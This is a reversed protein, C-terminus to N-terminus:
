LLPNISMGPFSMRPFRPEARAIKALENAVTNYRREIHNLELGFFDELCRVEECYVEMRADHCSSNKMVQNIIFQSDGQVDLCRIGLKIAIRLGNVLAKYEAVNNSAAFHLHIIYHLHVRLPSIFLLGIGVGIKMLSRDFYMTWLETQIPATSLQTDTWEALFDALIQSKIAKRPAFTLTEGMLEVVWKAVRGLAERDQIIERSPLIVSSDSPSVLLLTM